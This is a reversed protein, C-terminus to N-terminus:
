RAFQQLGPSPKVQIGPLSECNQPVNELAKQWPQDKWRAFSYFRCIGGNSVLGIGILKLARSTKQQRGISGPATCVPPSYSPLAFDELSEREGTRSSDKGAESNICTSELLDSYALSPLPPTAEQSIEILCNGHGWPFM